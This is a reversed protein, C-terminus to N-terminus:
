ENVQLRGANLHEQLARQAADREATGIRTPFKRAEDSDQAETLNM